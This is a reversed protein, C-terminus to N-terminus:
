ALTCQSESDAQKQIEINLGVMKIVGSRSFFRVPVEIKM